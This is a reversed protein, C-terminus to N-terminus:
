WGAGFRAAGAQRDAEHGPNSETDTDTDREHSFSM